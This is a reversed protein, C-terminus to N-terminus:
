SVRSLLPVFTAPPERGDDATGTAVAEVAQLTAWAGRVVPRKRVRPAHALQRQVGVVGLHVEQGGGTRRARVADRHRNARLM